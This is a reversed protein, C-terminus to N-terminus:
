DGKRRYASGVVLKVKGGTTTCLVNGCHECTVHTQSHSFITTIENCVKCKVDMFYSNPNQVLRKLKHKREEQIPDANLLDMEM